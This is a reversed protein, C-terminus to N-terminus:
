FAPCDSIDKLAANIIARGHAHRYRAPAASVGDAAGGAPEGAGGGDRDRGRGAAGRAGGAPGRGRPRSRSRGASCCRRWRIGPGPRASGRSTGSRSTAASARSSAASSPAGGWCGAGGLTAIELTERASMADAGNRVRQLLMAQRAESLSIARTTAPRGTSGSRGGEGRRRADAPGARDGVGAPLELLPLAGGGDRDPRLPRDRRRRAERLPRALCARRDLGSGRCVAGAPLRVASLSYAIDEDNEALHTHLM